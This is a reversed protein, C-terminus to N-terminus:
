SKKRTTENIPLPGSMVKIFDDAFAQYDFEWAITIKNGEEEPKPRFDAMSVGRLNGEALGITVVKEVYKFAQPTTVAFLTMVDHLSPGEIGPVLKKYAEFYYQFIDNMLAQYPNNKTAVIKEIMVPTIVADNTVNLPYLVGNKVSSMVIGAAIPDGYFNAEAGPTVNGPTLFAGGMIFYAKVINMTEKGALNFAIALSTSRGIDVIVLEEKYNEIVKFITDFNLLEGKITSPPKIPGLGQEGHIEPYFPTFEGTLPTKAGSILLVGKRNALELLYAVNQTAQNQDINGYSTVIAILDIKPNLLAYMIALSDDIGPDCFLLVKQPM